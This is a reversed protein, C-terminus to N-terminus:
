SDGGRLHPLRFRDLRRGDLDFHPIWIVRVGSPGVMESLADLKDPSTITGIEVLAVWRLTEADVISIDPRVYQRGAKSWAICPYEYFFHFAHVPYEGVLHDMARCAVENQRADMPMARSTVLRCQASLTAHVKMAFTKTDLLERIREVDERRFRIPGREGLQLYSVRRERIWKRVTAREVGLSVAVDEPRMLPYMSGCFPRELRDGEREVAAGRM